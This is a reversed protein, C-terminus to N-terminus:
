DEEDLLAEIEEKIEAKTMDELEAEDFEMGELTLAYEILESKNMKSIDKQAEAKEENSEAAAEAKAAKEAAAANAEMFKDYEEKTTEVIHGSAMARQVRPHKLQQETVKQVKGGYVSVKTGAEYFSGGRAKKGIKIYKAM